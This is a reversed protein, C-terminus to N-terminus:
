SFGHTNNEYINAVNSNALNAFSILFKIHEVQFFFGKKWFHMLLKPPKRIMKKYIKGRIM